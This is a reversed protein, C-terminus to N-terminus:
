PKRTPLFPRGRFLTAPREASRRYLQSARVAGRDETAQEGGYGERAAGAALRDRQLGDRVGGRACLRGARRPHRQHHRHCRRRAIRPRRRLRRRSCASVPSSPCPDRGALREPSRPASVGISSAGRRCLEIQIRTGGTSAARLRAAPRPRLSSDPPIPANPGPACVGSGEDSAPSAALHSPSARSSRAASRDAPHRRRVVARLEVHCFAIRGLRRCASRSCARPSSSATRRGGDVDRDVRCRRRSGCGVCPASTRTRGTRGSSPPMSSLISSKSKPSPDRELVRRGVSTASIESRGRRPGSASRGPTARTSCRTSTARASRRRAARAARSM